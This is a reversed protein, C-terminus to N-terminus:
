AWRPIGLNRCSQRHLLSERHRSLFRLELYFQRMFRVSDYVFLQDVYTRVQDSDLIKELLIINYM